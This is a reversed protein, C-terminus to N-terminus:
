TIDYTDYLQDSPNIRGSRWQITSDPMQERHSVNNTLIVNLDYIMKKKKNLKLVKNEIKNCASGHYRWNSKGDKREL